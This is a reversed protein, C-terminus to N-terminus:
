ADEFRLANIKRKNRRCALYQPYLNKLSFLTMPCLGGPRVAVAYLANSKDANNQNGNNTNFNWANNSSSAHETGSWYDYSQLM